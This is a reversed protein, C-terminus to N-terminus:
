DDSTLGSKRLQTARMIIQEVNITTNSQTDQPTDYLGFMAKAAYISGQANQARSVKDTCRMEALERWKILLQARDKVFERDEASPVQHYRTKNQEFGLQKGQRWKTLTSKTIGLVRAMHADAMVLDNEFCYNYMAKLRRNIESLTQKQTDEKVGVTSLEDLTKGKYTFQAYAGSKPLKKENTM